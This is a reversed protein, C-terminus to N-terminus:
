HKMEVRTSASQSKLDNVTGKLRDVERGSKHRAHSAARLPYAIGGCRGSVRAAKHCAGRSGQALKYIVSEAKWRNSAITSDAEIIAPRTMKNAIPQFIINCCLGSTTTPVTYSTVVLEPSLSPPSHHGSASEHSFQVRPRREVNVFAPAAAFASPRLTESLMSQPGDEFPDVSLSSVTSASLLLSGIMSSNPGSGVDSLLSRGLMNTHQTESILFQKYEVCNM